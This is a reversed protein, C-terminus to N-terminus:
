GIVYVLLPISPEVKVTERLLTILGLGHSGEGM